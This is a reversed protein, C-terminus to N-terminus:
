RENENNSMFTDLAKQAAMQEAKRKSKGVGEAKIVDQVMVAVRFTQEHDKEGWRELLKYIPLGMGKAQTYEQLRTKSDVLIALSLTGIHAIDDQWIHLILDKAAQWGGDLYIAAIMAELTDAIISESLASHDEKLERAITKDLGTRRAARVLSKKEVLRVFKAAMVGEADQPFRHFLEEAMVQGLIRDGLFELRENGMGDSAMSKHTIAQTYLQQQQFVYGAFEM